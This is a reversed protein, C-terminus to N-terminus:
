GLALKLVIAAVILGAALLYGSIGDGLLTDVWVLDAGIRQAGLQTSIVFWLILGFAVLVFTRTALFQLWSPLWAPTFAVSILGVMAALSVLLYLPLALLALAANLYNSFKRM